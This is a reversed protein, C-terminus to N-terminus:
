PFSKKIESVLFEKFAKVRPDNKLQDKLSLSINLEPLIEAHLNMDFEMWDPLSAIGVGIEAAKAIGSISSVELVSKRSNKDDRGIFLVGDVM